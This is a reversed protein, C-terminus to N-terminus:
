DTDKVDQQVVFRPHHNDDVAYVGRDSTLFDEFGGGVGAAVADETYEGFPWAIINTTRGTNKIMARQFNLLDRFVRDRKANKVGRAKYHHLKNTHSGFEILSSKRLEKIDDWSLARRDKIDPIVTGVWAGVLNVTSAFGHKQLVPYAHELYSYYGDDFTIVIDKPKASHLMQIPIERYGNDALWQMQETFELATVSYRDDQDNNIDHYMLVPTDALVATSLLMLLLFYKMTEM